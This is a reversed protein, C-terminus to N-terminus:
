FNDRAYQIDTLQRTLADDGSGSGDGAEENDLEKKRKLYLVDWKERLKGPSLINSSWFSDRNAWVFVDRIERPDRNDQERMLRITNAWDPLNRKAPTAGGLLRDIGRAMGEALKLDVLEGWKKGNPTQIAADPRDIQKAEKAPTPPTEQEGQEPSEPNADEPRFDKESSPTNTTQRKDKTAGENRPNNGETNRHNGGYNTKSKSNRPTKSKKPPNTAKQKWLWEDVRTNIKVPSYSTVGVRLVVQKEILSKLVPQVKKETITQHPSSMAFAIQSQAVRDKSKNYGFTKREIVDLVRREMATLNWQALKEIVANVIRTYGDELAPKSDPM